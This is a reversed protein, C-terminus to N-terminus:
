FQEPMVTERAGARAKRASERRKLPQIADGAGRLTWRGVRAEPPPASPKLADLAGSSATSSAFDHAFAGRRAGAWAYGGFRLKCVQLPARAGPVGGSRSPRARETTRRRRRVDRAAEGVDRRRLRLSGHVPALVPALADTRKQDNGGLRVADVVGRVRARALLFGPGGPAILLQKHRFCLAKLWVEVGFEIRSTKPPTDEGQRTNWPSCLFASFGRPRERQLSTSHLDDSSGSRMSSGRPDSSSSIGM